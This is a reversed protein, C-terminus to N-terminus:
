WAGKKSKTLELTLTGIIRLLDDRERKIRALELVPATKESTKSLWGYITKPSCGHETALQLVSIGQKVRELIQQKTEQSITHYSM